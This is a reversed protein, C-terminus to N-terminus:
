WEDSLARVRVHVKCLHQLAFEVDPLYSALAVAVFVAMELDQEFEVAVFTNTIKPRQFAPVFPLATM